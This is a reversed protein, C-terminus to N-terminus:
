ALFCGNARDETLDVNCGAFKKMLNIEGKAV